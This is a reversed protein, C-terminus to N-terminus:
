SPTEMTYYESLHLDDGPDTEEDLTPEPTSFLPSRTTNHLNSTLSTTSPTTTPKSRPTLETNPTSTSTMTPSDHKMTFEGLKLYSIQQSLQMFAHTHSHISKVYTIPITLLFCVRVPASLLAQIWKNM